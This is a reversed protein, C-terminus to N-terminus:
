VPFTPRSSEEIARKRMVLEEITNLSRLTEENIEEDSVPVGLEDELFSVLRFVGLPDIVGNEMLPEDDTITQIGKPQALNAVIFERIREKLPMQPVSAPDSRSM